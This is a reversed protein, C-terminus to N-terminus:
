PCDQVPYRDCRCPCFWHNIPYQCWDRRGIRTLDLGPCYWREAIPPNDTACDAADGITETLQCCQCGSFALVLLLLGPRITLLRMTTGEFVRQTKRRPCGAADTAANQDRV